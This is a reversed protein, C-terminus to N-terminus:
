PECCITLMFSDKPAETIPQNPDKTVTTAYIRGSWTHRFTAVVASLISAAHDGVYLKQGMVAFERAEKHNFVLWIKKDCQSMYALISILPKKSLNKPVRRKKWVYKKTSRELEWFQM